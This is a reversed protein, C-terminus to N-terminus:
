SPPGSCHPECPHLKFVFVQQRSWNPPPVHMACLWDHGSSFAPNEQRPAMSQVDAPITQQPTAVVVDALVIHWDTADPPVHWGAWAVADIPEAWSQAVEASHVM